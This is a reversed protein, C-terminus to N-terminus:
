ELGNERAVKSATYQASTQIGWGTAVTEGGLMYPNSLPNSADLNGGTFVSVPPIIRDFIEYLKYAGQCSPHIGDSDLNLAFNNTSADALVEYIDCVIYNKLISRLGRIYNNCEMIKTKIENSIDNKPPITLAVVTIGNNIM